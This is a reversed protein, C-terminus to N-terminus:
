DQLSPLLAPDETLSLTQTRLCYLPPDQLPPLPLHSPAVAVLLGLQLKPPLHTGLLSCVSGPM